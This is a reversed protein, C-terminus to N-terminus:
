RDLLQILIPNEIKKAFDQLYDEWAEKDKFQGSEKWGFGAYYTIKKDVVRLHAYANNLDVTDSVYTEFGEIVKKNAIIGTGLESNGHPQWYGMYGKKENMFVVGDNEHLTLGASLYDTGTTAVEFKSLNSGYDLSVWKKESIRTGNADWDEYTLVFSTRLPGTTLTKWGIFNKSSYYVSDKKFAIGGVGRSKGVHFNDLGEGNDEHYTGDTQTEKQYWKNIIPYNVKKLWADIGSSLTGGPIDNEIMKQATPGFTRFAVRDNEWAYDDTREPVFRSFCRAISDMVVNETMRKIEYIKSSKSNIKPQFLLVDFKGDGNNDIMQSIIPKKTDTDIIALNELSDVKLFTKDLTVTEYERDVNLTNELLIEISQNQKACSVLFCFSCLVFIYTYPKRMKSFKTQPNELLLWYVVMSM